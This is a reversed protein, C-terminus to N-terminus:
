TRRGPGRTHRTLPRRWGRSRELDVDLELKGALSRLRDRHAKRVLEELGATLTERTTGLGSLRRAEELLAADLDVTIRM